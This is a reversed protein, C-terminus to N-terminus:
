KRADIKLHKLISFKHANYTRRKVPKESVPKDNLNGLQYNWSLIVEFSFEIVLLHEQGHRNATGESDKWRKSGRVLMEEADATEGDRGVPSM